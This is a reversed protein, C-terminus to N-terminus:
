IGFGLWLHAGKRAYRLRERARYTAGHKRRRANRKANLYDRHYACVTYGKARKEGCWPCLGAKRRQERRERNVNM